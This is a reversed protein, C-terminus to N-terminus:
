GECAARLLAEEFYAANEKTFAREGGRAGLSRRAHDLFLEPVGTLYTVHKGHEAVLMGGFRRASTFHLEDVRPFETRLARESFGAELGALLIAQEMPRGRAIIEDGPTTSEDVEEIYGDSALVAARLMLRANEGDAEETTGSLTVFGAAKMRGETLTGTKDTLIISTAGLTEAALLSKVLGGQKLIREMGLALVVTVAAPLGEPIAAVAIAIAILLTEGFTIGHTLALVVVLAIVLAVIILLLRAIGKIDKQLPTEGQRNGLESAIKGLETDNGTAVIIGTAAGTVVLTGAYAMGTREVLPADMGVADSNKESPLWEGSLAAENMSLGHTEILRIDAPAKAGATLVVIDGPVAESAPIERKLGNRIVQARPAEEKALAKFADGAKGEQFIGIAVNVMLALTIIFADAYHAILVTALAALLLVIAIPSKIQRWFQKLLTDSAGARITNAGTSLRRAAEEADLGKEVSINFATLAETAPLAHWPRMDM